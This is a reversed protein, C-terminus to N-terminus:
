RSLNHHSSKGDVEETLKALTSDDLRPEGHKYLSHDALYFVLPRTNRVDVPNAREIHRCQVKDVISTEVNDPAFHRTLYPDSEGTDGLLFVTRDPVADLSQGSDMDYMLPTRVDSSMSVDSVEAPSASTIRQQEPSVSSVPLQEPIGDFSGISLNGASFLGYTTTQIEFFMSRQGAPYGTITRRRKPPREAFTCERGLSKCYYCPPHDDIRCATKRKRCSDCSRKSRPRSQVAYGYVPDFEEPSSGFTSQYLAAAMM